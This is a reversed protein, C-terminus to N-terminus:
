LVTIVLAFIGNKPTTEKKFTKLKTRSNEIIVRPEKSTVFLTNTSNQTGNQLRKKKNYKKHAMTNTWKNLPKLLM